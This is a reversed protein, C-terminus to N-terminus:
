AAPAETPAGGDDLKPAEAPPAAGNTGEGPLSSPPLTSRELLASADLTQDKPPATYRVEYPFQPGLVISALEAELAPEDGLAVRHLVLAGDKGAVYELRWGKAFPGEAGEQTVRVRWPGDAKTPAETVEFEFPVAAVNSTGDPTISGSDQRVKVTWTDGVAWIDSTIAAPKDRGALEQRREPEDPQSNRILVLAGVLAVAFVVVSFAIRAPSRFM